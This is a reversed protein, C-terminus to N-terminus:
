ASQLAKQLSRNACNFNELQGSIGYAWKLGHFLNNRLRLIIIFLATVQESAQDATGSLVNRVLEPNDSHRLRLGNFQPSFEGDAYFRRRFYDIERACADALAVNKLAWQEVKKANGSCDLCTAEFLSWLLTFDRIATREEESLNSFGYAHKELWIDVSTMAGVSM